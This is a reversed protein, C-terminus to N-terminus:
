SADRGMQLVHWEHGVIESVIDNKRSVYGLCVGTERALDFGDAAYAGGVSPDTFICEKGGVEVVTFSEDIRRRSDEYKGNFRVKDGAKFRSM